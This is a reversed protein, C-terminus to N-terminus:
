ALLDVQATCTLGGGLIETKGGPALNAALQFSTKQMLGNKLTYNVYVRQGAKLMVGSTNTIRLTAIDLRAGAPAPKTVACALYKIAHLKGPQGTIPGTNPKFTAASAFPASVALSVAVAAAALLSLTKM